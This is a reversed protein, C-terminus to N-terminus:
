YLCGYNDDRPKFPCPFPPISPALPSCALSRIPPSTKLPPILSASRLQMGGELRRFPNGMLWSWFSALPYPFGQMSYLFTLWQSCPLSCPVFPLHRACQGFDCHVSKRGIGKEAENGGGLIM